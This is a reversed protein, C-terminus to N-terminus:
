HFVFDMLGHPTRDTLSGFLLLLKHCLELSDLRLLLIYKYLFVNTFCGSYLWFVIMVKGLFRWSAPVSQSREYFLSKGDRQQGERQRRWRSIGSDYTTQLQQAKVYFLLITKYLQMLGDFRQLAWKITWHTWNCFIRDTYKCLVPAASLSQSVTVVNWIFLSSKSTRM